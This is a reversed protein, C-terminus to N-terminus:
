SPIIGYQARAQATASGDWLAKKLLDKKTTINADQEEIELFEVSGSEVDEAVETYFEMPLESGSIELLKCVQMTLSWYLDNIDAPDTIINTQVCNQIGAAISRVNPWIHEPEQPSWVLKNLCHDLFRICTQRLKEESISGDSNQNLKVAQVIEKALSEIFDSPEDKLLNFKDLLYKYIVNKIKKLIHEEQQPEEKVFYQKLLEPMQQLFENFAYANVFSHEKLKILFMKTIAQPYINKQKTKVGFEMFQKLHELSHPLFNKYEKHNFTHHIFCKVGQSTFKIPSFFHEILNQQDDLSVVVGDDIIIGAQSSQSFSEQYVQAKAKHITVLLFLLLFSLAKTHNFLKMFVGGTNKQNSCVINGPWALMFFNFQVLRM